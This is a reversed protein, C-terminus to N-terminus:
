PWVGYLKWEPMELEVKQGEFGYNHGLFYLAVNFPKKKLCTNIM